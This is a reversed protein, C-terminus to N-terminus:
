EVQNSISSRIYNLTAIMSAWDSKLRVTEVHYDFMSSLQKFSVRLQRATDLPLVTENSRFMAVPITYDYDPKMFGHGAPCSEVVPPMSCKSVFEDTDTCWNDNEAKFITTNLYNKDLLEQTYFLIGPYYCFNKVFREANLLGLLGGLSFGIHIIPEDPWQIDTLMQYFTVDYEDTLEVPEARWIIKDIGYKSFYDLIGVSYGRSIFYRAVNYEASGIGGSGHSILILEEHKKEIPILININDRIVSKSILDSFMLLRGGSSNIKASLHM